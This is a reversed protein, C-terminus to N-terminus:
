PLILRDPDRVAIRALKGFDLYCACELMHGLRNGGADPCNQPAAHSKQGM